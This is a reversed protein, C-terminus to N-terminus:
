QKKGAKPETGAFIRGINAKHRIIVLLMVLVGFGLLVSDWVGARSMQILMTM